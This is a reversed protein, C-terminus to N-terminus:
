RRGAGGSGPLVCVPEPDHQQDWERFLALWGVFTMLISDSGFNCATQCTLGLKTRLAKVERGIAVEIDRGRAGTLAHPDQGGAVPRTGADDSGEPAPPLGALGARKGM